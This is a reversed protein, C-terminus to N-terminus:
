GGPVTATGEYGVPQLYTSPYPQNAQAAQRINGFSQSVTELEPMSRLLLVVDIILGAVAAARASAGGRAALFSLIFFIVFGAALIPLPGLQTSAAQVQAQAAAQAAPKAKAAQTAAAAGPTITGKSTGETPLGPDSPVYNAIARMTVIGLFFLFEAMLAHQGGERITVGRAIRGPGRVTGRAAQRVRTRRAAQDRDAAAQAQREARSPEGRHRGPGETRPQPARHRGPVRRAPPM